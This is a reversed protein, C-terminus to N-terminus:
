TTLRLPGPPQDDGWRLTEAAWCALAVALVLDDHDRERWSEFSENASETIKVTFTGLERLLTPTEPLDPALQLRRTGLLVQVVSVLQKKAVRFRGTGTQTVASGATITVGVLGGRAGAKALATRVMEVVAEGVGTADVVLVPTTGAPLQTRYWRTLDAVISTYATGLPWRHLTPIRYRPPPPPPAFAVRPERDWELVALASPDHLKGLDLGLVIQPALKRAATVPKV